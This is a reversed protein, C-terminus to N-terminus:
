RDTFNLKKRISEVEVIVEVVAAFFTPPIEKGVEVSEYLSRALQREETIHVENEEAISIIKLALNDKGKAVVKPASLAQPDVDYRLAVAFHTPNRIVVDSTPVEQMMRKQAIEFQKQKIKSKIKPDGEIQKYEDKVEQKSMKLKKEYQWWQFVFDMASVFVFIIIILMVVHFINRAIFVMGQIVDMEPLVIITPMISMLRNYVVVAIGAITILGKVVNVASQISFLRKAGTIPNLKSFKPKLPQMTFLGKTQLVSPLIGVFVAVALLPGIITVVFLIIRIAVESLFENSPTRETGVFGIFFVVMARMQRFMLPALLSLAFFVGLVAVATNVEKSQLVNGEKERADKRKKPTAKETKEQGGGM